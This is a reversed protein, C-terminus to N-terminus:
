QPLWGGEDVDVGSSGAAPGAAGAEQRREHAVAAALEAEWNVEPAGGGGNSGVGGGRHLLLPCPVAKNVNLALGAAAHQHRHLQLAVSAAAQILACSM